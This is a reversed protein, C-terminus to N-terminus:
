EQEEMLMNILIIIALRRAQNITGEEPISNLKERLEEITM